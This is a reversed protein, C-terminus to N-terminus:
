DGCADDRGKARCSWRGGSGSSTGRPQSRLFLHDSGLSAGPNQRATVQVGAAGGGRGVTVQKQDRPDPLLGLTILLDRVRGVIWGLVYAITNLLKIMDDALHGKNVDLWNRFADLLTKIVPLLSTGLTTKLDDIISQVGKWQGALTHAYAENAGAFKGTGTTLDSLAQYVDRFGVRGEQILKNMQFTSVGFRKALEDQIPIGAHFLEMMVRADAYGREKMRALSDTILPINEKGLVVAINALRSMLPNIENISFGFSLLQKAYGSLEQTTFPSRGALENLQLMLEHAKQTNGIIYSLQLNQQQWASTTEIISKILEAGGIAVAAALALRKIRAFVEEYRKAGSEDVRFGLTTFLARSREIRM